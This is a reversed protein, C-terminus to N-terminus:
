SSGRAACDVAAERFGTGCAAAEAEGDAESTKIPEPEPRLAPLPIIETVHYQRFSMREPFLIGLNVLLFTLVVMFAYSAALARKDIKREPLIGLQFGQQSTAM